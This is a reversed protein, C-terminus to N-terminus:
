GTAMPGSLGSMFGPTPIPVPIPVNGCYFGDDWDLYLLSTDGPESGLAGSLQSIADGSARTAIADIRDRVGSESVHLSSASLKSVQKLTERLAPDFPPIRIVKGEATIRIGGGDGGGFLIIM